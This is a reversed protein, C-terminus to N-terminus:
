NTYTHTQRTPPTRTLIHCVHPRARARVCVCVCVCVYVCASARARACVNCITHTRAHRHMQTYVRRQQKHQQLGIDAEKRRNYQIAPHSEVWKRELNMQISSIFHGAKCSPSSHGPSQPGTQLAYKPFPECLGNQNQCPIWWTCRSPDPSDQLSM